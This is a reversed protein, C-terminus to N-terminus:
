KKRWLWQEFEDATLGKPVRHVGQVRNMKGGSIARVFKAMAFSSHSRPDQAFAKMRQIEVGDAGESCLRGEYSRQAFVRARALDGQVIVTQFADLYACPLRGDAIGETVLNYVLRHAWDLHEKPNQVLHM